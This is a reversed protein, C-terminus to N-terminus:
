FDKMIERLRKLRELMHQRACAPHYGFQEIAQDEPPPLSEISRIFKIKAPGFTEGLYDCLPDLWEENMRKYCDGALQKYEDTGLKWYVEQGSRYFHDLSEGIGKTISDSFDVVSAETM